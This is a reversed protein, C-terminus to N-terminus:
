EDASGSACGGTVPLTARVRTGGGSRQEHVCVGGLEGARERMSLVGVGPRFDAPLGRGDDEVLVTLHRDALTLTVWCRSAAAHRAVNTMAAVAIRYAAVEVAAPLDGRGDGASDIGVGQLGEGDIPATIEVRLPALQLARDRLALLLGRDDLAPPRLEYSLERLASAAAAADRGIGALATTMGDREAPRDALQRVTEARLAIGAITPGIDDHLTRRIVRREEERALVLRERSRQLARSLALEHAAAGVQRSLDALLRREAPSFREGPGRNSVGLWGVQEDRFTLPVEYLATGGAPERGFEALEWRDETRWKIIVYPVRMARGVDAAVAALTVRRAATATLQEAVRSLAAYPDDRDGYL